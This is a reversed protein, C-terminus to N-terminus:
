QGNPGFQQSGEWYDSKPALAVLTVLHQKLEGIMQHLYQVQQRDITDAEFQQWVDKTEELIQVGRTVAEQRIAQASGPGIRVKQGQPTQLVVGFRTQQQMSM